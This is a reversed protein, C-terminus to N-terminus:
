TLMNMCMYISLDKTCKLEYASKYLAQFDATKQVTCVTTCQEHGCLFHICSSSVPSMGSQSFMFMVM